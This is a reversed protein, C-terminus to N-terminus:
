VNARTVPSWRRRGFRDTERRTLPRIFNCEWVSGIDQKCGGPNNAWRGLKSNASDLANDSNVTGLSM